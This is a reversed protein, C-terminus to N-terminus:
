RLDFLMKLLKSLLVVYFALGGELEWVYLCICKYVSAEKGREKRECKFYGKWIYNKFM